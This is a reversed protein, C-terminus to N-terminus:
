QQMRFRLYSVIQEAVILSDSLHKKHDNQHCLRSEAPVIESISNVTAPNDIVSLKKLCAGGTLQTLRSRFMNVERFIEM